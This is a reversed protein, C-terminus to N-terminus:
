TYIIILALLIGTILLNLISRVTAWLYAEIDSTQDKIVRVVSLALPLTIFCFIARTDLVQVYVLLAISLYTLLSLAYVLPKNLKVVKQQGNITKINFKAGKLYAVVTVLFGLPFSLYFAYFDFIGSLAFYGSVLCLPGFTLFVVLEKLGLKMLPTFLTMFILGIIAPVLVQIGLKDFFYLGIFFDIVICVAGAVLGPNLGKIQDIFLPKWGKFIKTHADDTFTHNKTFHYYLYDGGMQGIFLALFLLIFDLLDFTNNRYALAGSFLAPVISASFLLYKIQRIAQDRM